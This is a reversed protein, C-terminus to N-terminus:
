VVDRSIPFSCVKEHPLDKFELKDDGLQKRVKYLILRRSLPRTKTHCRNTARPEPRIRCRNDGLYSTQNLFGTPMPAVRVDHHGNVLDCYKSAETWMKEKKGARAAGLNLQGM